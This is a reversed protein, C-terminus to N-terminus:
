ASSEGGSDGDGVAEAAGDAARATRREDAGRIRDGTTELDVAMLSGRRGRLQLSRDNPRNNATPVGAFPRRVLETREHETRRFILRMNREHMRVVWAQWPLDDCWEQAFGVFEVTGDSGIHQVRLWSDTHDLEGWIDGVEPRAAQAYAWTDDPVADIQEQTVAADTEEGPLWLRGPGQQVPVAAAPVAGQRAMIDSLSGNSLVGDTSAHYLDGRNGQHYHGALPDLADAPAPNGPMRDGRPGEPSIPGQPGVPGQPGATIREREEARNLVDMFAQNIQSASSRRTGILPAIDRAPFQSIIQTVQEDTLGLENVPGEVAMAAEAAQITEPDMTNPGLFVDGNRNPRGFEWLNAVTVPFGQAIAEMIEERSRLVHVGAPRGRFPVTTVTTGEVHAPFQIAEPGGAEGHFIRLTNRLNRFGRDIVREAVVPDYLPVDTSM